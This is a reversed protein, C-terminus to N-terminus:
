DSLSVTCLVIDMEIFQCAQTRGLSFLVYPKDLPNGEMKGKLEMKAPMNASLPSGCVKEMGASGVMEDNNAM